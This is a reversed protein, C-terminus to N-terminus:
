SLYRRLSCVFSRENKKEFTAIGTACEHNFPGCRMSLPRTSEPQRLAVCCFREEAPLTASNSPRHISSLRM